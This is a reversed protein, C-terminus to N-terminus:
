ELLGAVSSQIESGSGSFNAPDPINIKSAPCFVWEPRALKFGSLILLFV